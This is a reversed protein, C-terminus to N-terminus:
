SYEEFRRLDEPRDVDPNVGAVDVLGVPQHRLVEGLGADGSLGLALPWLARDLVVPHGPQDPAERYRPRVSTRSRRWEATLVAIVEARLGPQDALVVVAAGAAHNIRALGALGLQLSSALGSAANPNEILSLGATDLTWVLGTAGVPVVAVGGALTGQAIAEAVATAVHAILPRGHIPALLKNGGFRSSSGAALVLAYASATGPEM